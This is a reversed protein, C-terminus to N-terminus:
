ICIDNGLIVYVIQVSQYGNMKDIYFGPHKKRQLVDMARSLTHILAM